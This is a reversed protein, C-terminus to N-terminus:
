ARGSPVPRTRLGALRQARGIMRVATELGDGVQDVALDLVAIGVAAATHDAAAVRLPHGRAGTEHVGLHRGLLHQAVAAQRVAHLEPHVQRALSLRASGRYWSRVPSWNVSNRLSSPVAITRTM